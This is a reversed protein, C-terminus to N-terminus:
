SLYHVFFNSVKPSIVYVKKENGTFWSCICTKTGFLLQGRNVPIHDSIHGWFFTMGVWVCWGVCVCMCLQAATTHKESDHWCPPKDLAFVCMCVIVNIVYLSLDTSMHLSWHTSVYFWYLSFTVIISQPPWSIYRDRWLCPLAGPESQQIEVSM